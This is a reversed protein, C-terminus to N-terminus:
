GAFWDPASLSGGQCVRHSLEEEAACHPCKRLLATILLAGHLGDLRGGILRDL